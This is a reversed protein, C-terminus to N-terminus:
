EIPAHVIRVSAPAAGDPGLTWSITIRRSRNGIEGRAEDMYNEEVDLVIRGQHEEHVRYENFDGIMFVRHGEAPSQYFAIYTYLGNMAPDGGATAYLKAGINGQRLETVETVSAERHRADDDDAQVTAPPPVQTASTAVVPQAFAILAAAGCSLLISM